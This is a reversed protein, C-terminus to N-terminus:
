SVPPGMCCEPHDGLILPYKRIELEGFSVRKQKNPLNVPHFETGGVELPIHLLQSTLPSAPGCVTDCCSSSSASSDSVPAVGPVCCNDESISRKVISYLPSM